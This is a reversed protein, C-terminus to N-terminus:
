KSASCENGEISVKDVVGVPWAKALDFVILFLVTKILAQILKRTM